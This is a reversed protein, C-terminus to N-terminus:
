PLPHVLGRWREGRTDRHGFLTFGNKDDRSWQSGTWYRTRGESVEARDTSYLVEYYGPRVPNGEANISFWKTFEAKM